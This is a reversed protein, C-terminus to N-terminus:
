FPKAGWEGGFAQEALMTTDADGSEESHKNQRWQETLMGVQDTLM